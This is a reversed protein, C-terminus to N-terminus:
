KRRDFPDNKTPKEGWYTLAELREREYAGSNPAILRDYVGLLWDLTHPIIISISKMFGKQMATEIDHLLKCGVSANVIGDFGPDLKKEDGKKECLFQYGHLWTRKPLVSSIPQRLSKREEDLQSLLTKIAFYDLTLLLM